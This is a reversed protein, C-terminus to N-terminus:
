VNHRIPFFRSWNITKGSKFVLIHPTGIGPKLTGRHMQSSEYNSLAKWKKERKTATSKSLKQYAYNKVLLKLTGEDKCRYLKRIKAIGDENHTM